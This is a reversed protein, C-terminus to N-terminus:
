GDMWDRVADAAAAPDKLTVALTRGEGYHVYVAGPMGLDSFAMGGRMNMRWGWGGYELWKYKGHEVNTLDALPIRKKILGGWSAVVGDADVSFRLSGFPIALLLMLLGIGTATAWAAPHAGYSIMVSVAIGLAGSGIMLILFVWGASHVVRYPKM